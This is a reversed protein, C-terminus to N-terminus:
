IVSQSSRKASQVQGYSLNSEGFYLQAKATIGDELGTLKIFRNCLM